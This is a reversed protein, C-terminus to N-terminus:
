SGDWRERWTRGKAKKEVSKPPTDPEPEEVLAVPEPAAVPEAPALRAALADAMRDVASQSEEAAIARAQEESVGAPQAAAAAAAEATSKAEAAEARAERAEVGAAGALAGVTAQSGAVAATTEAAGDGEVVVTESM